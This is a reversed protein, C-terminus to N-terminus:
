YLMVKLCPCSLHFLSVRVTCPDVEFFEATHLKRNSEWAERMQDIGSSSVDVGLLFLLQETNIIISHCQIFNLKKVYFVCFVIGIGIYHGIQADVWKDADAGGGCYLDCM